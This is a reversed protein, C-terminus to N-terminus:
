VMKKRGKKYMVVRSGAIYDHLCRRDRRFIFLADVLGIAGLVLVGVRGPVLIALIGLPLTWQHRIVFVNFFPILDSSNADVIQIGTLVKGISQGRSALTFGHVVLMAVFGLGALLLKETITVNQAAARTFYGSYFEIPFLVLEVLIVDVISSAFRAFRGALVEGDTSESAVDSNHSPAAFPNSSM